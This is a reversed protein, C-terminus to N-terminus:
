LFKKLTAHLSDQVIESAIRKLKIPGHPMAISYDAELFMPVDNLDDGAVIIKQPRLEERFFQIVSGKSARQDTLLFISRNPDVSDNIVSSQFDSFQQQLSELQEKQGFFKILPVQLEHLEEISMFEKWPKQNIKKLEELYLLDDESFLSKQFYSFDGHDIGSYVIYPIDTKKLRDQIAKIQLYNRKILQKGPMKLIDAGNQLALYYPIKLDKLAYNAYSFMRGTVFAIKSGQHHFSHLLEILTPHMPDFKNVVTGDLDFAFLWNKM